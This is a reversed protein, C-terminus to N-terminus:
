PRNIRKSRHGATVVGGNDNIVAYVSLWPELLRLSRAGGLERELRKRAQKDFYLLDAGGCRTTSGCRELLEIVFPPIGRQQLRAEAHRSFSM